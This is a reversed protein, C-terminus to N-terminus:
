GEKEVIKRIERVDDAIQQKLAEADPFKAQPRLRRILTLEVKKDYFDGSADLLFAEVTRPTPGFTPNVGISVASVHTKDDVRAKAAYVGDAPMVQKGIDLNATPFDLLRGRGKGSIVDGFLTFRRGLCYNADEIQGDRILERILTSSIRRQGQDLKIVVPDVVAIEFGRQSGISILTNVDGSRGSGFFFNSGEVIHMPALHSMVLQEVFDRASLKLLERTTPLTIVMDAGNDLLMRCNEKHPYVMPPPKVEPHLVEEPMPDFTLAVIPIRLRNALTRCSLLIRQHGLHVGDFHGITLVCSKISAPV